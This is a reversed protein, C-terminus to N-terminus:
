KFYIPHKAPTPHAAVAAHVPKSLKVNNNWMDKIAATNGSSTRHHFGLNHTFSNWAHGLGLFNSPALRDELISGVPNAPVFLRRNAMLKPSWGSNAEIPGTGGAKQM